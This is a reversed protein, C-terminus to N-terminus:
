RWIEQIDRRLAPVLKKASPKISGLAKTGPHRVSGKRGFANPIAHPKTGTELYTGYRQTHSVAIVSRKSTREVAGHIGQRAHGTRDEWSAKRKAESEIKGAYTRAIAHTAVIRREIKAKIEDGIPM